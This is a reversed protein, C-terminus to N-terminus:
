ETSRHMAEGSEWDSIDGVVSVARAHPAWVRFTYVFTGEATTRSHCGLYKWATFNTGQHFLYAPLETDRCEGEAGIDKETDWM